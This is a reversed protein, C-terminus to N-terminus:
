EEALVTSYIELSGRLTLYRNSANDELRRRGSCAGVAFEGEVIFVLAPCQRMKMSYNIGENVATISVVQCSVIIVRRM